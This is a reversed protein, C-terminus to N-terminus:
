PGTVFAASGDPPIFRTSFGGLVRGGGGLVRGTPFGLVRRTGSVPPLEVWAGRYIANGIGWTAVISNLIAQGEVTQLNAADATFLLGWQSWYAGARADFMWGPPTSPRDACTMLDVFALDTAIVGTSGTLHAARGNDQITYMASFGAIQLQRLVGWHSGAFPWIDWANQVRAGADADSEGPGRRLGRDALQEDLADTPPPGFVGYADVNGKTPFRALLGQRLRNVQDDLAGGTEGSLAQGNTRRLITPGQTKLWDRYPM